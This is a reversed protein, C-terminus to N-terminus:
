GLFVRGQKVSFDNISRLSDFWQVFFFSEYKKVSKSWTQVLITTHFHRDKWACNGNLKHKEKIVQKSSEELMYTKNRTPITIIVKLAHLAQCLHLPERHCHQEQRIFFFLTCYNDWNACLTSLLTGVLEPFWPFGQFDYFFNWAHFFWPIQFFSLLWPFIM